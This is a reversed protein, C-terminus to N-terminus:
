EARLAPAPLMRGAAVAPGAAILNAVAITCPITLLLRFFPTVPVPLTGANTAFASWIVRGVVIGLPLGIVLATAVFTTAQWVIAWRVQRPVFGIM